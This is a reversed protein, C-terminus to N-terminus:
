KSIIELRRALLSNLLEYNKDTTELKFCFQQRKSEHFYLVIEPVIEPVIEAANESVIESVIKPVSPFKSTSTQLRNRKTPGFFFTKGDWSSTQINFKRITGLFVKSWYCKKKTKGICDFSVNIRATNAPFSFTSSPAIIGRSLHTKKMRTWNKMSISQSM